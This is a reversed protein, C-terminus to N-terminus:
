LNACKRKLKIPPAIMFLWWLFCACSPLRGAQRQGWGCNCPCWGALKTVVVQMMMMMMMMMGLVKECGPTSVASPHFCCMNADLCHEHLSDAAFAFDCNLPWIKCSRKSSLDQPQTKCSYLLAITILPCAPLISFALLGLGTPVFCITGVQPVQVEQYQKSEVSKSAAQMVVTPKLLTWRPHGQRM